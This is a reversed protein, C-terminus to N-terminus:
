RISSIRRLAAEKWVPDRAAAKLKEIAGGRDGEELLLMGWQYYLGGSGPFEQLGGAIVQEAEDLMGAEVLLRSFSNFAKRKEERPIGPLSLADRYHEIAEGSRKMEELLGALSLAPLAEGPNLRVAERYHGLARRHEGNRYALWGMHLHASPNNPDSRLVAEFEDAAKEFKGEGYYLTGLLYRARTEGKAKKLYEKAEGKQGLELDAEGLLMFHRGEATGASELAIMKSRVALWDGKRADALATEYAADPDYPEIL